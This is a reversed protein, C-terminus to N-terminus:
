AIPEDPLRLFRAAERADPAPLHPIEGLCPTALRHALWSLNADVEPMGPDIRNAVWGALPLGRQRIAQATLLAHNLCGLRLGVVLIVPLGLAVALDGGDHEDDLPVLLGGAGEVIVADAQARLQQFASVIREIEITIGDHRAAIHPSAPTKLLYPNVLADPARVSAAAQLALVDANTWRGDAQQEAGAAIPKMGAVRAHRTRLRHLLATAALTKGVGTDTGVVFWATM